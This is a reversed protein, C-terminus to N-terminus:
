GTSVEICHSIRTNYDAGLLLFKEIVELGRQLWAAEGGYLDTDTDRFLPCTWRHNECSQLFFVGWPSGLLQYHAEWYNNISRAIQQKQLLMDVTNLYSM